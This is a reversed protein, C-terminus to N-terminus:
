RKKGEMGQGSGIGKEDVGGLCAVNGIAAKEAFEGM